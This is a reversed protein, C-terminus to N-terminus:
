EKSLGAFSYENSRYYDLPQEMSTPVLFHFSYYDCRGDNVYFVIFESLFKERDPVHEMEEASLGRLNM